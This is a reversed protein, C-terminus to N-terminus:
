VQKKLEDELGKILELKDEDSLGDWFREIFSTVIWKERELVGEWTNYSHHFRPKSKNLAKCLVENICIDLQKGYNTDKDTLFDWIGLGSVFAKELKKIIEYDSYRLGLNKLDNESLNKNALDKGYVLYATILGKELPDLKALVPSLAEITNVM